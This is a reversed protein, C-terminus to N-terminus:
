IIEVIFKLFTITAFVMIIGLVVPVSQTKLSARGEAGAMMYKVGMYVIGGLAFFECIYLIISYVNLVTNEASTTIFQKPHILTEITDWGYFVLAAVVLTIMSDKVGAKSDVGGWIYKVGLVVTVLVFITNGVGKVLDKIPNMLNNVNQNSDITGNFFNNAQGWWDNAYVSPIIIMIALLFICAMSIKKNM